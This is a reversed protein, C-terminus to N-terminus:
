NGTEPAVLVVWSCSSATDSGIVVRPLRGCCRRETGAAVPRHPHLAPQVVTDSGTPESIRGVEMSPVARDGLDGTPRM